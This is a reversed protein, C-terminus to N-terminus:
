SNNKAAQHIADLICTLFIAQEVPVVSSDHVTITYKSTVSFYEREVSYLLQDQNDRINFSNTASLFIQESYGIENESMGYFHFSYGYRFLDRIKQEGLYGVITGSADYVEALRNLKGGWRKIQKESGWLAGSDDELKFVDGTVNVYKGSVKGFSVGDIEIDYQNNFSLFEKSIKITQAQHLLDSYNVTIEEVDEVPVSVEENVSPVESSVCGVLGFIMLGVFLKAKSTKM